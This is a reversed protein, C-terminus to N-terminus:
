KINKFEAGKIRTRHFCDHKPGGTAIKLDKALLLSVAFVGNFDEM